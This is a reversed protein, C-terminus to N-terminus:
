CTSSPFSISISSPTIAAVDSANEGLLEELREVNGRIGGVALVSELHKSM